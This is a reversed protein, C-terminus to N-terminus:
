EINSHDESQNQKENSSSPPEKSIDRLAMLKAHSCPEAVFPSTKPPGTLGASREEARQERQTKLDKSRQLASVRTTATEAKRGRHRAKGKPRAKDEPTSQRRGHKGEPTCNGEPTSPGEPTNKGAPPTNNANRFHPTADARQAVLRRRQESSTDNM